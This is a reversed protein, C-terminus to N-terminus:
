QKTRRHVVNFNFEVVEDLEAGEFTKEIIDKIKTKIETEAEEKTKYRTVGTDYYDVKENKLQYKIGYRREFRRDKVPPFTPTPFESNSAMPTADNEDM